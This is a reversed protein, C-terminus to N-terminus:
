SGGLRWIWDPHFDLIVISFGYVLTMIPADPLFQLGLITYSLLIGLQIMMSYSLIKFIGVHSIKLITQVFTRREDANFIFTLSAGLVFLIASTVVAMAAELNEPIVNKNLLIYSATGGFVIMITFAFSKELVTIPAYYTRREKSGHSIRGVIQAILPLAVQSYLVSLMNVRHLYLWSDDGGFKQDIYAFRSTSLAMVGIIAMSALIMYHINIRRIADFFITHELTQFGLWLALGIVGIGSSTKTIASVHQLTWCVGFSSISAISLLASSISKDRKSLIGRIQSTIEEPM